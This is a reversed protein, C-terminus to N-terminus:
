KKRKKRAAYAEQEERLKDRPVSLLRRALTKFRDTAGEAMPADNEEGKDGSEAPRKRKTM